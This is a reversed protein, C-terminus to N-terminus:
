LADEKVEGLKVREEYAQVAENLMEESMGPMATNSFKYFIFQGNFISVRLWIKFIMYIQTLLFFIIVGATNSIPIISKIIWYICFLILATFVYLLFLFVTKRMSMMVFMLANKTTEKMDYFDNVVAIIKAYDFLMNILILMMGIFIWVITTLVVPWLETDASSSLKGFIFQIVSGMLLIFIIFLLSIAFLRMFRKFYLSAGVFFNTIRFNQEKHFLNLIGGALFTNLIIYFLGYTFILQSVNLGSSFDSIINVLLPFDYSKLLKEAATTNMLARNFMMSIPLALLYAFVLNVVYMLGILKKEKWANILGLKYASLIPIM